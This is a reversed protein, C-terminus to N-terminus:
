EYSYLRCSGSNVDKMLKRPVHLTRGPNKPDIQRVHNFSAQVSCELGTPKFMDFSIRGLTYRSEGQETKGKLESYTPKSITLWNGALASPDVKPIGGRAYYTQLIELCQQAQPTDVNGGSTRLEQILNMKVTEIRSKSCMTTSVTAIVPPLTVMPDPYQSRNISEMQSSAVSVVNPGSSISAQDSHSPAQRVYKKERGDSDGDGRGRKHNLQKGKGNNNATSKIWWKDFTKQAQAAATDALLPEIGRLFCESYYVANTHARKRESRAFPATPKPLLPSVAKDLTVPQLRMGQVLRPEPNEDCPQEAAVNWQARQPDNITNMTLSASTSEAM